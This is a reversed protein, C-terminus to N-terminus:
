NLSAVIKDNIGTKICKIASSVMNKIAVASSGGHGVISVGNVGLFPVGGVTEYNFPALAAELVRKAPAIDSPDVKGDAAAAKIMQMAAEPFSEGLKLAINGVLGDCVYVDSKAFLIDRGEMNGMFDPLDKLRKHTEKLVETGKEEEEGVNLLGVKPKEIGLIETCFIQGMKAFQFAMEPKLELNAGADILLRFGKITPYYASIAPRIVGELKGLIFMSAALLAGTNGASIFADCKGKKHLGVGHVISSDQKQKIAASPSENMGIIQPAHHIFLRRQDYSKGSLLEQISKEPGVLIVKLDKFEDLALLAAEVPNEPFYDGGAADIAVVM